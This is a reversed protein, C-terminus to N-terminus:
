PESKKASRVLWLGGVASCGILFGIALGMLGETLVPGPPLRHAAVAVHAALMGAVIILVWGMVPRLSKASTMKEGSEAFNASYRKIKL